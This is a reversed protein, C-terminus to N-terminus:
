WVANDFQCFCGPGIMLPFGHMDASVKVQNFLEQVSM